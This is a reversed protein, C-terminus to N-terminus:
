IYNFNVIYVLNDCKLQFYYDELKSYNNDRYKELYKDLVIENKFLSEKKIYDEYIENPILSGSKKLVSYIHFLKFNASIGIAKLRNNFNDFQSQSLTDLKVKNHVDGYLINMGNTLIMLLCEFIDQINEFSDLINISKPTKINGKFVLEILENLDGRIM